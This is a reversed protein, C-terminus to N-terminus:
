ANGVDFRRRHRDRVAPSSCWGAPANSNSLSTPWHQPALVAGTAFERYARTTLVGSQPVPAGMKILRDLAHAKGGVMDITTGVGGLLVSLENM